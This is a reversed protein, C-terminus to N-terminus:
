RQEGRTQGWTCVFSGVYSRPVLPVRALSSGPYYVKSRQPQSLKVSRRDRCSIRRVDARTSRHLVTLNRM